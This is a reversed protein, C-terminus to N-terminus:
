WGCPRKCCPASSNCPRHCCMGMCAGLWFPLWLGGSVLCLIGHCSHDVSQNRAIVVTQGGGSSAAASNNNNNNIIIPQAPAAPAAPANVMIIQPQMMM